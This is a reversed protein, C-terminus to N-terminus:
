PQITFPPVTQMRTVNACLRRSADLALVISRHYNTLFAQFIGRHYVMKWSTQEVAPDEKAEHDL